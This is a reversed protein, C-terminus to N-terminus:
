VTSKVRRTVLTGLCVLLFGLGALPMPDYGTFALVPPEVVEAAVEGPELTFGADGYKGEFGVPVAPAGQGIETSLNPDSSVPNDPCDTEIYCSM